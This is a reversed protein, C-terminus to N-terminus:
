EPPVHCTACGDGCPDRGRLGEVGERAIIPVMVLAAVPDAWWWGVLANLALGGLLIASLWTCLATQMAEAALARSALADAVRRKARALLPMIVVSAAAIAIGVPSEDPAERALLARGADVAVYAALALFLGGVIRLTAREAAERRGPDLDAQLRWLAAASAALEIGSDIGFGVLAVSGAVVGATIAIIGELSNYGLTLVSLWQGRRVLAARPAAALQTAM